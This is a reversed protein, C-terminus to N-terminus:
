TTCAMPSRSGSCRPSARRSRRGSRSCRCAPAMPVKRGAKSCPPSSGAGARTSPAVRPCCGPSRTTASRPSTARAPDRSLLTVSASEDYGRSGEPLATGRMNVTAVWRGDPSVALGEASRDTDVSSIVTHLAGPDDAVALEIVSIRSRSSPLRENLNPAQLDRGWDSTLYHLGDPTFRGVFPDTGTRVSAGWEAVTWDPGVTLFVVRDQSTINVALAGGAPHWQVNTALVGGRPSPASGTIGLDALDHTVPEGFRAGNSPVIQLVAREPTNAVVAVGTGEPHM